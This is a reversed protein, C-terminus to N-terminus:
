RRSTTSSSSTPRPATRSCTSSTSPGPRSTRCARCAASAVRRRSDSARRPRRPEAALRAGRHRPRLGVPRLVRPPHRAPPERPAPGRSVGQDPGRRPQPDGLLAGHLRRARGPRAARERQSEGVTSSSSRRRATPPSSARSGPSAPSCSRADGRRDAQPRPGPPLGARRAAEPSSGATTCCASPWRAPPRSM